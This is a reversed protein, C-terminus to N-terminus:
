AGWISCALRSLELGRASAQWLDTEIEIVLGMSRWEELLAATRIGDLRRGAGSRRLVGTFQRTSFQRGQGVPENAM